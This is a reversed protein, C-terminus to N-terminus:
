TEEAPQPRVDDGVELVRKGVLSTLMEVVDAEIHGRDAAFKVALADVIQGINREGDVHHLVAAAIDDLAFAREPALLISVNRIADFRLRVGYPLRPITKTSLEKMQGFGLGAEM